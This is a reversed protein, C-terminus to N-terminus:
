CASGGVAFAKALGPWAALGWGVTNEELLEYDDEELQLDQERRRKKKKKLM